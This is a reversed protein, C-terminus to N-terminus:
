ASKPERLVTARVALAKESHIVRPLIDHEPNRSEWSVWKAQDHRETRRWSRVVGVDWITLAMDQCSVGTGM